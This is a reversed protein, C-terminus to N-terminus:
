KFEYFMSVFVIKVDQKVLEIITHSRFRKTDISRERWQSNYKGKKNWALYNQDPALCQSKDTKPAPTKKKFIKNKGKEGWLGGTCLQINKTAPGELQPM